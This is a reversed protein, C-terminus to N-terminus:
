AAECPSRPFGNGYVQTTITLSAHGLQEQVYQPSEGAQLLLSAFTHRLGHPTFHKPLRAAAKLCKRFVKRVNHPEIPKGSRTCFVWPPRTKWKHRKMRTPLAMQLRRLLRSLQESMAMTRGHGGKPTGALGDHITYDAFNLDNWQLGLAEGLRVGAGAPTAFLPVYAPSVRRTGTM